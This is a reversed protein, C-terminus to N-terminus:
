QIAGSEVAAWKSESRFVDLPESGGDAHEGQLHCSFDIGLLRFIKLMRHM